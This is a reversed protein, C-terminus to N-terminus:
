AYHCEPMIDGYRRRHIKPADESHVKNGAAEAGGEARPRITVITTLCLLRCLTLCLLAYHCEPTIDEYRKRRMKAGFDKVRIKPTKKPVYHDDDSVVYRKRPTKAGYGKVRTKPTKKAVYQDDDPDDDISNYGKDAPGMFAAGEAM